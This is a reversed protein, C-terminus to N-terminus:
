DRHHSLGIFAKISRFNPYFASVERAYKDYQKGFESEGRLGGEEFVLTGILIFVTWLSALLIHNPTYAPLSWYIWLFGAAAPHRVLGYPFSRIIVGAPYKGTDYQYRDTGFVHGPLTWLFGVILLSGTTIITASLALIPLPVALPNWATCDTIPRWYYITIFWFITAFVAFLPREVPHQWLGVARKYADRAMISHQAWWLGFLFLDFYLNELILPKCKGEPKVHKSDLTSTGLNFPDNLLFNFWYAVVLHAGVFAVRSLIYSILHFTM